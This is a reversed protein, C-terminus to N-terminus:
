YLPHNFLTPNDRDFGMTLLVLEFEVSENKIQSIYENILQKFQDFFDKAEKKTFYFRLMTLLLFLNGDRNSLNIKLYEEINRVQPLRKITHNYLIEEHACVNRFNNIIKLIGQVDRAELHINKNDIKWGDRNFYDSFDKAITNQLEDDLCGYFHNINGLTLINVLVWLPVTGHESLYHNISNDRSKYSIANSLTAINKAVDLTKHPNDTYNNLNFYPNTQGKFKESFRYSITSKLASEIKLLYKLCLNRLERDFYYLASVEDFSTGRKFKEPKIIEGSVPNKELFIDKYGNIVNYYNEKELIRIVKSAAAGKPINMGRERLIKIQQNHSKYPKPETM